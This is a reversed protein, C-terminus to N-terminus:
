HHELGVIRRSSTLNTRRRLKPQTPLLICTNDLVWNIRHDKNHVLRTSRKQLETSNCGSTTELGFLRILQFNVTEVTKVARLVASHMWIYGSTSLDSQYFCSNHQLIRTHHSSAMIWAIGRKCLRAFDCIAPELQSNPTLGYGWDFHRM